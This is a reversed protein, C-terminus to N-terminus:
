KLIGGSNFLVEAQDQFIEGTDLNEVSVRWVSADDDWEAGVVKHRFKTKEYVGYERALKRYFDWIEEAGVYVKSWNPNGVWTYSYSHAPIDCSVGPYRSELWTGGIDDNKEYVTFDVNELKSAKYVFAIGSIGAGIGIIRIPRPKGIYHDSWNYKAISGM